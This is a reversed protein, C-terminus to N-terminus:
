PPIQGYAAQNLVVEFESEVFSARELVPGPVESNSYIELTRLQAFVSIVLFATEDDLETVLAEHNCQASVCNFKPAFIRADAVM